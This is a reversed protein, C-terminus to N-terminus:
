GEADNNEESSDITSNDTVSSEFNLNVTALNGNNQEIVRGNEDREISAYCYPCVLSTEPIIKGCKFCRM